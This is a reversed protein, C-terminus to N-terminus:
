VEVKEQEGRFFRYNADQWLGPVLGGGRGDDGGLRLPGGAGAGLSM